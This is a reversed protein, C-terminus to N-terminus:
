VGESKLANSERWRMPSVGELRSFVKSFYSLSAFGSLYAVDELKRSADALMLQKAHGIRHSAVWESFSVGYTDNLFRSLYTRNTGLKAALTELTVGEQTYGQEAVWIKLKSELLMGAGGSIAAVPQRSMKEHEEWELYAKEIDGYSHGYNIFDVVVHFNLVLAYLQFFLNFLEGEFISIFALVGYIVMMIILKNAWAVFRRKDDAYYNAMVKDNHLYLKRFKYLFTAIYEVLTLSVVAAVWKRVPDFLPLMSLACIAVVGVWRCADICIRRRSIYHHDLLNCLAYNFIIYLLYIAIIDYYIQVISPSQFSGEYRLGWYWINVSILLYGLTLLRKSRRYPKYIAGTPAKIRWMLLCFLLCSMAMCCLFEPFINTLQM